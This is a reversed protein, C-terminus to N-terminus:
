SNEDIPSEVVFAGRLEGAKFGVAQDNPYLESIAKQLPAALSSGHCALCQPETMIAKMYRLQKGEDTKSVKSYELTAADEGRQLRQEFDRLVATQWDSPANNTNRVRLATRGVRLKHQTSLDTAIAPAQVKCVSLGAIAGQQQMTQQLVQKLQQGLAKAVQRSEELNTEPAASCAGSAIAFLLTIASQTRIKKLM